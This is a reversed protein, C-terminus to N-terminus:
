RFTRTGKGNYYTNAIRIGGATVTRNLQATITGQQGPQTFWSGALGDDAQPCLLVQPTGYDYTWLTPSASFLSTNLSVPTLSSGLSYPVNAAAFNSNTSANALDEADVNTFLTEFAGGFLLSTGAGSSSNRTVIAEVNADLGVFPPPSWSGSSWVAVSGGYSSSNTSATVPATFAGGVWVEDGDGGGNTVDCAIAFVEGDLGGALDDVAGTNPDIAAMNSVPAGALEDFEGGVYVTGTSSSVCIASIRGGTNTEGLRVFAGSSTDRTVVTARAPDYAGAGLLSASSPDYLQLGAFSGIVASQGLAAFNIQPLSPQQALTSTPAACVLGFLVLLTTWLRGTVM